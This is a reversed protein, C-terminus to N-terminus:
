RYLAREASLQKINFDYYGKFAALTNTKLNHKFQVSDNKVKNKKALFYLLFFLFLLSEKKTTQNKLHLLGM